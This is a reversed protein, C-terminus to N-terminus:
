HKFCYACILFPIFSLETQRILFYIHLNLTILCSQANNTYVGSESLENIRCHNEPIKSLCVVISLHREKSIDLVIM